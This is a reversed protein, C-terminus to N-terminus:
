FVVYIFSLSSVAVNFSGLVDTVSVVALLGCLSDVLCVLATAVYQAVDDAKRTKKELINIESLIAEILFDGRVFKYGHM